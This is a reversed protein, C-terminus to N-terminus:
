FGKLSDDIEIQEPEKLYPNVRKRHEPCKAKLYLDYETCYAIKGTIFITDKWNKYLDNVEPYKTRLLKLVKDDSSM